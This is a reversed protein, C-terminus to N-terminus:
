HKTQKYNFNQNRIVQYLKQMKGALVNLRQWDPHKNDDPVVFMNNGMLRASLERYEKIEAMSPLVPRKTKDM